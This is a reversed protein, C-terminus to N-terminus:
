SNLYDIAKDLLQHLMRVGIANWLNSMEELMLPTGNEFSVHFVFPNKLRQMLDHYLPTNLASSSQEKSLRRSNQAM